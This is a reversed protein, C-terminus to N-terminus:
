PKSRVMDARQTPDGEVVFQMWSAGTGGGSCCNGTYEQLRLACIPRSVPTEM